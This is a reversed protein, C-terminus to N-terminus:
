LLLRVIDSFVDCIFVCFVDLEAGVGGGSFRVVLKASLNNKFVPHVLM